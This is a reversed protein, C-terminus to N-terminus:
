DATEFRETWSRLEKTLPSRLLRYHRERGEVVFEVLGAEELLKLHRSTTPWTCDFRDAIEGSTMSGGRASLVVLISRRMRHSLASFIRDAQELDRQGRGM